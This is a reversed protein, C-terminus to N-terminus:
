GVKQFENPRKEQQAALAAIGERFSVWEGEDLDVPQMRGPALRQQQQQQARQAQQPAADQGDRDPSSSSSGPAPTLPLVEGYRGM